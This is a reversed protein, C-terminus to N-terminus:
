LNDLELSMLQLSICSQWTWPYSKSPWTFGKVTIYGELQKHRERPLTDVAHVPTRLPAECRCLSLSGQDLAESGFGQKATPFPPPFTLLKCLSTTSSWTGFLFNQKRSWAGQSWSPPLSHHAGPHSHFRRSHGSTTITPSPIDSFLGLLERMACQWSAVCLFSLLRGAVCSPAGPRCNSSRVVM